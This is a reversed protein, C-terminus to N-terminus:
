DTLDDIGEKAKDAGMDIQDSYKGGTKDDAVDAAKDVGSKAQAEHGGFMGKVKEMLGM